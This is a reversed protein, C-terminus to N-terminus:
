AYGRRRLKGHSKAHALAENYARRWSARVVLADCVPCDMRWASFLDSRRVRILPKM